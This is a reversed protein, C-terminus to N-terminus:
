NGPRRPWATSSHWGRITDRAQAAALAILRVPHV